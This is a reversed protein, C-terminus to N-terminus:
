GVVGELDDADRVSQRFAPIAQLVRVLGHMAKLQEAFVFRQGARVDEHPQTTSDPGAATASSELSSSSLSASVVGARKPNNGSKSKNAVRKRRKYDRAIVEDRSGGGGSSARGGYAKSNCVKCIKAKLNTNMFACVPCLWAQQDRVYLCLTCSIVGGQEVFSPDPEENEVTCHTCIWSSSSPLRSSSSSSSPSASAAVAQEAAGTGAKDEM